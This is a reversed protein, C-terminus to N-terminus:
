FGSEDAVEWDIQIDNNKRSAKISTYTVPLTIVSSHFVVRFRNIDFSAPIGASVNIVINNTDSLSLPQVTNLYRDQLYAQVNSREM